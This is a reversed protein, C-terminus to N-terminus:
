NMYNQFMIFASSIRFELCLHCKPYPSPYSVLYLCYWCIISCLAKVEKRPFVPSHWMFSLPYPVDCTWTEWRKSKLFFGVFLLELSVSQSSNGSFILMLAELINELLLRNDHKLVIQLKSDVKDGIWEFIFAANSQADNLLNKFFRFVQGQFM